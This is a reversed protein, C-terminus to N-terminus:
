SNRVAQVAAEVFESWRSASIRVMGAPAQKSHGYELARIYPLNNSLYVDESVKYHSMIGLFKRISLDADTADTQISADVLGVNTNWNARARGTDVPTSMVVDTFFELLAMRFVEEVRDEYERGLEAIQESAKKQRAM